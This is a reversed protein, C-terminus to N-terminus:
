IKGYKINFLILNFQINSHFLYLTYPLDTVCGNKKQKLPPPPQGIHTKMSNTEWVYLM